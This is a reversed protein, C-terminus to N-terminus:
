FIKDLNEESPKVFITIDVKCFISKKSTGDLSCGVSGLKDGCACGHLLDDVEANFQAVESDGDLPARHHKSVVLRHDVAGGDWM